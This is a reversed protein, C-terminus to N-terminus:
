ENEALLWFSKYIATTLDKELICGTGELMKISEKSENEVYAIVPLNKKVAYGVEFLTGSDLGDIVAFVGKAKELADIDKPVVESAIGHGIDHWPSFVQVKMSLLISRIQDILWRETFTFFPGALYLIGKPFNKIILPQYSSTDITFDFRRTTCYQATHISAKEASEIPSLGKFLFYAFTSAYVDGSGIPWVNETKYVPIIKETGAKRDLVLAGKAGMKLVLVDANESELFFKKIDGLDTTKAMQSAENYNVVIALEKAVSGTQSFAIPNTPSQPDYVVRDAIVKAAGEIFGFYLVDTSTISINNEKKNITDLRPYIRPVIMPHDYYFSIARSIKTLNTTIKPFVASVQSLFLSTNDDGFTYFQIEENADLSNIARCARLGSGFKEEWRPEFCVEDYTGGVITM